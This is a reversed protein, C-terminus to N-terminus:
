TVAAPALARVAEEETAFTELVEDLRTISLLYGIRPPTRLLNVGGGRRRFRVYAAIILGLCATDIHTVGSLNIVVRACGRRALDDLVRELDHDGTDYDLAGKLDIVAVDDLLKQVIEM